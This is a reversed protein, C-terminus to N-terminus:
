FFYGPVHSFRRAFHGDVIASARSHGVCRVLARHDDLRGHIWMMPDHVRAPRAREIGLAAASLAQFGKMGPGSM